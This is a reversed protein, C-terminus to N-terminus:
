IINVLSVTVAMFLIEVYGFRHQLAAPLHLGMRNYVSAMIKIGGGNLYYFVLSNARMFCLWPMVPLPKVFRVMVAIGLVAYCLYLPFNHFDKAGFATIMTRLYVSDFFYLGLYCVSLLLLVWRRTLIYRDVEAEYICYFFGLGFFPVGLLARDLSYPLRDPYWVFVCYRSLLCVVMFFLITRNSKIQHLVWGFMVQGIGLAVM